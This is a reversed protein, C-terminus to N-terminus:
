TAMAESLANGDIDIGLSLSPADRKESRLRQEAWGRLRVLSRIKAEKMWAESELIAENVKSAVSRRLAPDMLEALPPALSDLPFCLLAMTRELDHLFAPNDPARPALHTTAFSLAPGIDVDPSATCTRILEILQLRLLSFHLSPNTDLIEPYLENIREIATQIDGSHIANRIQVREQIGYFQLQPSLNAEQAFKSAAAEYGEIILYNM